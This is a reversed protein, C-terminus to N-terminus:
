KKKLKFALEVKSGGGGREISKNGIVEFGELGPVGPLSDVREENWFSRHGFYFATPDTAHPLVHETEGESKLVRYVERFFDMGEEDDLHEVFHSSYVIDVSNDPFPIGGRVDWVIDQGCDKIDIGISDKELLYGCGINLKTKKFLKKKIDPFRRIM